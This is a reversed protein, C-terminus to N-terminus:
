QLPPLVCGPEGTSAQGGVPGGLLAEADCASDLGQPSPVKPKPDEASDTPSNAHDPATRGAVVWRAPPSDEAEPSYLPVVALATDLAPKLHHVRLFQRRRGWAGSKESTGTPQPVAIAFQSRFFPGRRSGRSGRFVCM